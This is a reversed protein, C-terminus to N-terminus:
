SKADHFIVGLTWREGRTVTSVGHRMAARHFGRAGRRPRDATAFLVAEGRRPLLAEGVSQSRPRQEVLLFAGGDYDRGPESLFVALQLPFVCPGYLDRHLCNYGGADYRLLLPTPLRQGQAACLARLAPLTAPWRPARADRGRQLAREWDNAIPALRRYAEARLAAVLPPLPDAFYKYEGRGFRHREMDVTKRFRRADGYLSVLADCEAPEVLRPLSAFGREDLSARLAPWDLAALRERVAARESM